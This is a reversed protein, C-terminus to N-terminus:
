VLPNTVYIGKKLDEIADLIGEEDDKSPAFVHNMWWEDEIRKLRDFAKKSIIMSVVRDHRAIAVDEHQSKDIIEALKARAENTSVKIM